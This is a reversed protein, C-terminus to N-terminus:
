NGDEAEIKLQSSLEPPLLEKNLHGCKSCVFVQIPSIADQASGGPILFKSVKRIMVAETFTQNKCEECVIPTTKDISVTVPSRSQQM